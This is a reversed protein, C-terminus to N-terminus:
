SPSIRRFCAVIKAITKVFPLHSASHREKIIDFAPDSRWGHNYPKIMSCIFDRCLTMFDRVQTKTCKQRLYDEYPVTHDTYGEYQIRELTDCLTCSGYELFGMLYDCASPSDESRPVLYLLTGQYKGDNIQTIREPNWEPQTGNRIQSPMEASVPCEEMGDNLVITIVKKVLYLYDCTKWAPNEKIDDQLKSKNKEWKDICYPIM